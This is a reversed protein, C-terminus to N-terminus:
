DFRTAHARRRGMRALDRHKVGTIQSDYVGPAARLNKQASVDFGIKDDNIRRNLNRWVECGQVKKPRFAEPLPRIAAMTKLTGILSDHKDAPNHTCLIQM